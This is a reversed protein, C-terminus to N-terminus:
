EDEENDEYDVVSISMVANPFTKKLYASFQVDNDDFVDQLKLRVMEVGEFCKAPPPLYLYDDDTFDVIVVKFKEFKKSMKTDKLLHSSFLAGGCISVTECPLPTYGFLRNHYCIITGNEVVVVDFDRFGLMPVDELSMSGISAYVNHAMASLNLSAPVTKLVDQSLYVFWLDKPLNSFDFSSQKSLNLAKRGHMVSEGQPCEDGKTEGFEDALANLLGFSISM